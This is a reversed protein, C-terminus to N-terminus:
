MLVPEQDLFFYFEVIKDYVFRTDGQERPAWTVLDNVYNLYDDLSKIHKIAPINKAQARQIAKQFAPEWNNKEILRILKKVIKHM